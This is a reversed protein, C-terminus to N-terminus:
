VETCEESVRVFYGRGPYMLDNARLEQWGVGPVFTTVSLVYPWCASLKEYVTVVRDVTILNTGKRLKM